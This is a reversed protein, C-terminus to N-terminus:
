KIAYSKYKRLPLDKGAVTCDKDRKRKKMIGIAALSRRPTGM